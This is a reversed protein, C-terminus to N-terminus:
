DEEKWEGDRGGSEQYEKKQTEERNEREGGGRKRASRQSVSIYEFRRSESKDYQRCECRIIENKGDYKKMDVDFKYAYYVENTLQHTKTKEPSSKSTREIGEWNYIRRKQIHEKKEKIREEQTFLRMLLDNIQEERLLDKKLPKIEKRNKWLKKRKHRDQRRLCDKLYRNEEQLDEKERRLEAIERELEEIRTTTTKEKRNEREEPNKNKKKIKKGKEKEQNKKVKKITNNKNKKNSHDKANKKNFEEEEKKHFKEEPNRNMEEKKNNEKKIKDNKNKKNGNDKVIKKNFKEEKKNIKKRKENRKKENAKQNAEQRLLKIKEISEEAPGSLSEGLHCEMIEGLNEDLDLTVNKGDNGQMYCMNCEPTDSVSLTFKYNNSSSTVFSCKFREIKENKEGRRRPNVLPVRDYRSIHLGLNELLNREMMQCNNRFFIYRRLNWPNHFDTIAEWVQRPALNSFYYTGVVCGKVSPPKEWFFPVAWEKGAHDLDIGGTFYRKRSGWDSEVLAYTARLKRLLKSLDETEKAKECFQSERLTVICPGENIDMEEGRLNLFFKDRIEQPACKCRKNECHPCEGM